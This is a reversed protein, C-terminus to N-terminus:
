SGQSTGSAVNESYRETLFRLGPQLSLLWIPKKNSCSAPFGDVISPFCSRVEQFNRERLYRRLTSVVETNKVCRSTILYIYWMMTLTLEEKLDQLRQSVKAAYIPSIEVERKSAVLFVVDLARVIECLTWALWFLEWASSRQLRTPRLQEELMAFMWYSSHALIDDFSSPGLMQVLLVEFSKSDFLPLFKGPDVAADDPLRSLLDFM